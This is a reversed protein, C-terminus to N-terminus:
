DNDGSRVALLLDYDVLWRNIEVNPLGIQRLYDALAPSPMVRGPLKWVDPGIRNSIVLLGGPKLVRVLERVAGLPRPFFEVAELCTVVDFHADDFPLSQADHRLWTIRNAYASLKAQAQALMQSSIDLAVVHGRFNPQAFLAAPLRGTGTAVDLVQAESQREPVPWRKDTSQTRDETKQTRDETKQRRAALHKLIPMALMIADNHPEFQKVRDYRKAYWDYLFAVVRRGLYAGEAIVLQWYAALAILGALVATAIIAVVM